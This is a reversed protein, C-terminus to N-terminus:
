VAWKEKLYTMIKDRNDATADSGSVIVIEAFGGTIGNSGGVLSGFHTASTPNAGSVAATDTNNNVETTEIKLYSKNAATANNPDALVSLAEWADATMFGNASQNLVAQTGSAGRTIWHRVRNNFGQSARDDFWIAAGDNANSGSTQDIFAYLNNPDSTSSPKVVCAFIYKTGDKLFKFDAITTRVLFDGGDFTIVNRSNLTTLGSTPRAGATGQTLHFASATKDDWQTVANGSVSITTTDSADYWAVLGALDSPKFSGTASIIGPILLM